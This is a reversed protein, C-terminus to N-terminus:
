RAAPKRYEDFEGKRLQEATIGPRAAPAEATAADASVAEGGVILPAPVGREDLVLADTITWAGDAGVLDIGVVVRGDPGDVPLTFAATDGSPSKNIAFAFLTGVEAPEGVVEVVAPHSTALAEAEAFATGNRVGSFVSFVLVALGAAGLVALGAVVKFATWLPRRRPEPAPARYIQFGGGTDPASPVSRLKAFVVGCKRCESAPVGQDKGCKPCITHLM